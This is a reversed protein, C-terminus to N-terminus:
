QLNCRNGTRSRVEGFTQRFRVLGHRLDRQVPEQLRVVTALTM